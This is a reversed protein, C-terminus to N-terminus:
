SPSPDITFITGAVPTDQWQVTFSGGGSSGVSGFKVAILCSNAVWVGSATITDDYIVCGYVNSFSSSTWTVDDATICIVRSPATGNMSAAITTMTQATAPESNGGVSGAYTIEGNADYGLCTDSQPDQAMTNNYLACLFTDTNLDFAQTAGVRPSLLQNIINQSYLSSNPFTM